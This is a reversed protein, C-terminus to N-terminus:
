KTSLQIIIGYAIEVVGSALAFLEPHTAQPIVSANIRILQTIMKM